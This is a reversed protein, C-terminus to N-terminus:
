NDDGLDDLFKKSQKATLFGEKEAEMAMLAWLKDELEELQQYDEISLIVAVDRGKKQITVPERQAMDLMHGFNNKAERAALNRM